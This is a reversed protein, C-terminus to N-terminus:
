TLGALGTTVELRFSGTRQEAEVSLRSQVEIEKRPYRIVAMVHALGDDPADLQGLYVREPVEAYVVWIPWGKGNKRAGPHIMLRLMHGPWRGKAERKAAFRTPSAITGLRQEGTKGKLIEFVCWRFM